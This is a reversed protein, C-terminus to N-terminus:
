PLLSDVVAGSWAAVTQYASKSRSWITPDQPPAQHLLPLPAMAVGSAEPHRPLAARRADHRPTTRGPEPIAVLVPKADAVTASDPMGARLQPVAPATFMPLVAPLQILSVFPEAAGDDIARAAFKGGATLSPAGASSAPAVVPAASRVAWQTHLTTMVASAALTGLVSLSVQRTISLVARGATGRTAIVDQSRLNSWRGQQGGM